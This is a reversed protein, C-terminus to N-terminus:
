RPPHNGAVMLEVDTAETADFVQHKTCVSICVRHKLPATSFAVPQNRINSIVWQPCSSGRHLVISIHSQFTLFCLPFGGLTATLFALGKAQVKLSKAM